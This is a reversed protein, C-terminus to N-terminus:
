STVTRPIALFVQATLSRPRAAITGVGADLAVGFPTDHNKVCLDRSGDRAWDRM